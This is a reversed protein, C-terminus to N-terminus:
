RVVRGRGAGLSMRVAVERRRLSARAVLLNSVNVCAILLVGIGAVLMTYLLGFIEPGFIAKSYPMVDAGIGRNTAPFDRELQAAITASQTRAEGLSVDPKLRAVV